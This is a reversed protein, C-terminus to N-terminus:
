FFMRVSHIFLLGGRFSMSGPFFFSQIILRGFLQDISVIHQGIRWAFLWSLFLWIDTRQFLGGMAWDSGSSKPIYVRRPVAFCPSCM